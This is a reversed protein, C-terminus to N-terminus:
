VNYSSYFSYTTYKYYDSLKLLLSILSKRYMCIVNKLKQNNKKEFFKKLLCTTM